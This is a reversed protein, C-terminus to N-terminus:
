AWVMVKFPRPDTERIIECALPVQRPDQLIVDRRSDGNHGCCIGLTVIGKSWLATLVPVVCHDCCVTEKGTAERMFRPLSLVTEERRGGWDPRNYSACDCKAQEEM